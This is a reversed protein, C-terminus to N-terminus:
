MYVYIIYVFEAVHHLPLLIWIVRTVISPYCILIKGSWWKAVKSLNNMELDRHSIHLIRIHYTYIYIYLYKSINYIYKYVYINYIYMYTYGNGTTSGKRSGLLHKCMGWIISNKATKGIVDQAQQESIKPIATEESNESSNAGTEKRKRCTRSTKLWESDVHRTQWNKKKTM